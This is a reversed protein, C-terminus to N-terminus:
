DKLNDGYALILEHRARTLACYMLNAEEQSPAQWEGNKKRGRMYTDRLIWVRDRELGKAAHTSSLMIKGKDGSVNDEFSQDIRQLVEAITDSEEAVAHICDATDCVLTTDRELKELRAVEKSKWTDVRALLEPITSAKTRTIIGRLKGGLDRNQIAVRRGERVFQLCLKLLPANTRSLVFDGPDPNIKSLSMERVIGEPADPHAEFDPVYQKALEVIKRACRYSVTLKLTKAKLRRIFYDVAHHDAGRFNYIAQAPDAVVTVRGDANVAKLVLKVQAASFDQGEDCFVRAYTQVAMKAVCPLWIMDDFDITKQDEFSADLTREALSVLYERTDEPSMGVVPPLAVDYADILADLDETKKVLCSKALSVLKRVPGRVDRRNDPILEYLIKPVKDEDIKPRPYLASSIQRLGYSHLTSVKVGEPAREELEKAISKNFAVLLADDKVSDPLYKLGEIISTTKSCGARAIVATHGEGSAVDEFIATQQPSPVFCSLIENM